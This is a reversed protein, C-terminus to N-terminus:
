KSLSGCPKSTIIIYKILVFFFSNKKTKSVYLLLVYNQLNYTRKLADILYVQYLVYLVLKNIQKNLKLNHIKIRYKIPFNHKPFTDFDYIPNKEQQHNNEVDIHVPLRQLLM